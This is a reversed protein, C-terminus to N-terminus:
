EFLNILAKTAYLENILHQLIEVKEKKSLEKQNYPKDIGELVADHLDSAIKRTNIKIM